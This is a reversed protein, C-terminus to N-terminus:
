EEGGSRGPSGAGAGSGLPAPEGEPSEAPNPGGAMKQGIEPAMGQASIQQAPAQRKLAEFMQMHMQIAKKFGAVLYSYMQPNKEQLQEMVPAEMHEVLGKVKSEHDDNLVIVPTIGQILFSIEEELSQPRPVTQPDAIYVSTSLKGLCRAVDKLAAKITDPSSLGLQVLLPNMATQLWFISNQKDLEKNLVASPAVFKFDVSSCFDQRSEIRGFVERGDEGTVRFVHGVPLNEKLLQFIGRLIENWTKRLRSIHVNMKANMQQMLAMSGSATGLPGVKGPVMGHGLDSLTLREGHAAAMQEVQIFHGMPNPQNRFQIDDHNDVPIGKGPQLVIDDAKVSRSEKVTFWPMNQIVGSDILMNHAADIEQNVPYLLEVLGLDASERPIFSTMYYPPRGSKHCRNTFNWGLFIDYDESFWCVVKEEFGDGNVDFRGYREIVRYADQNVEADVSAM